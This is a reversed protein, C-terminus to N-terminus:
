VNEYSRPLADSGADTDYATRTQPQTTFRGSEYSRTLADANTAKNHLKRRRAHNRSPADTEKATHYLTQKWSVTTSCGGTNSHGNGLETNAETARHYLRRTQTTSRRTGYSRTLVSAHTASHYLSSLSFSLSFALSLSIRYYYLMRGRLEPGLGHSHRLADSDTATHYLTRDRLKM